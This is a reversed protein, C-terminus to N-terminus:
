RTLASSTKTIGVIGGGRKGIGNLWELSHDASVENFKGESWKVLFNGKKFEGLVEAPLQEMEAIFVSGWKAYNLHDYRFFYPLMSRLSELYLEWNGERQARTFQLLTSVMKMYSWWFKFNVNEESKQAVFEDLAAKFESTKFCAILEKFQGLPLLHSIKEALDPNSRGCSRRFLPTLMRWLAQLTIKHARMARKYAKGDMVNGAANPGLLGGEVWSDVLGSGKMHNGITKLFCMSIHLGGLQVVLKKQYETFAWKLEVLKCYLAQDVTIVTHQQGLAAAVRMCKMVVTNLTDMEHAPAQIIPMYGVKTVIKSEGADKLLFQNFATWGMKIVDRCRLMNFALDTAKATQQAGNGQVHDYWTTKVAKIFVPNTKKVVVSEIKDISEPVDLARKKPPSVGDLLSVHEMGRQWATIQTAHFTNKGDLTEDLIDVNDASFHVFKGQVLNPPIM